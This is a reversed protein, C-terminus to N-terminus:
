TLITIRRKMTAGVLPAANVTVKIEDAGGASLNDLATLRFLYIGEILGTVTTTYNSPTTITPTNPGSVFTWTHSSITGDIDTASGSLTVTSTPLTISQNVGANVVPTLNFEAFGIDPASGLFSLGVNTGANILASGSQLTYIGGGVFSPNTGLLNNSVTVGTPTHLGGFSTFFANSWPNNFSCNYQVTSTVWATMNTVFAGDQYGSIINNKFNFNQFTLADDFEVCYFPAFSTTAHAVMTNNYINLGNVTYNTGAGGFNGICFGYNDGNASGNNYFLNKQIVTSVIRGAPRMSFIIGDACNRFINNEVIANETDFELLMGTQRGVPLSAFGITNDHIWLSYSSTGVLNWNADISGTITNGYIENGGYNEFLEIGFDWFGDQGNFKGAPVPQTTLVNNYITTNKIHSECWGKIPEGNTQATRSNQTITNNYIQFGDSGGFMFCGYMTTGDCRSCNTMINDHFSLGTAYVAPPGANNDVQGTMIVGTQLFNQFTCHDIEVNNRGKVDIAFDQATARGDFKLFSIRQNGNTNSASLLQIGAGLNFATGDDYTSQIISTVGDGELSVGVPLNIQTTELYTGANVHITNGSTTVRTVAYALTLWEQGVSGNRGASNVGTTSIYFTAM